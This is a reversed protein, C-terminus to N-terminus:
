NLLTYKKTSDPSWYGYIYGNAKDKKFRLRALPKSVSGRHECINTRLSSKIHRKVRKYDGGVTEKVWKGNSNKREGAVMASKVSNEILYVYVPTTNTKERPPIVPSTQDDVYFLIDKDKTNAAMVNCPVSVNGLYLVALLIAMAKKM